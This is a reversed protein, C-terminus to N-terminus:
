KFDESTKGAWHKAFGAEVLRWWGSWAFARVRPKVSLYAEKTYKTTRVVVENRDRTRWYGDEEFQVYHDDGIFLNKTSLDIHTVGAPVSM